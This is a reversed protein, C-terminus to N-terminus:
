TRPQYSFPSTLYPIGMGFPSDIRALCSGFAVIWPRSATGGSSRGGTLTTRIAKWVITPM